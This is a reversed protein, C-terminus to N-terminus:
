RTGNQQRASEFTATFSGCDNAAPASKFREGIWGIATSPDIENHGKDPQLQIQIVDGMKCARYLANRTWAPPVVSDQGGYIVLM